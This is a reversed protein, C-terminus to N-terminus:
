FRDPLSDRPIEQNNEYFTKPLHSVNVDKAIKVAKWLSQTNGPIITKCVKKSKKKQFLDRIEKNLTELQACLAPTNSTKQQKLLRKRINLMREIHSLPREVCYTNNTFPTIPILLDVIKIIKNEIADWCSQVTESHLDWNEESLKDCLENKSYKCWSRKFANTEKPKDIDFKFM